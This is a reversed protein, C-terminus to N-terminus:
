PVAVGTALWVANCNLEWAIAPIKDVQPMCRQMEWSMISNRHLNLKDALWPRSVGMRTRAFLLRRAIDPTNASVTTSYKRAFLLRRAIDPMNASVTTSYEHADLKGQQGYSYQDSIDGVGCILWVPSISLVNAFHGLTDLKPRVMARERFGVTPQSSMTAHAIQTQSLGAHQRAHLMRKAISAHDMVVQQHLINVM